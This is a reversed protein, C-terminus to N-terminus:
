RDKVAIIRWKVADKITAPPIMRVTWTMTRWGENSNFDVDVNVEPPMDSDPADTSEIEFVTVENYHPIETRPAEDLRSLNGDELYALVQAEPFAPEDPAQGNCFTVEGGYRAFIPDTASQPVFKPSDGSYLSWQQRRCLNSRDIRPEWAWLTEINAGADWSSWDSPNGRSLSFWGPTYAYAAGYGTEEDIWWFMAFRNYRKQNIGRVLLRDTLPEQNQPNVGEIAVAITKYELDNDGLYGRTKYAHYAPLLRYPVLYAPSQDSIAISDNGRPRNQADYIVGGLQGASQDAKLDYRYFFLWEDEDDLLVDDEWRADINIRVLGKIQDNRYPLWEEPKMEDLNVNLDESGGGFSFLPGPEHRLRLGLFVLFIIFLVGFIIALIRGM